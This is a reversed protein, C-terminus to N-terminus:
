FGQCSHKRSISNEEKVAIGMGDLYGAFPIGVHAYLLCGPFLHQATGLFPKGIYDLGVRGKHPFPDPIRLQFDLFLGQTDSALGQHLNQVHFLQHTRLKQIFQVSPQLAKLDVADHVAAYHLM